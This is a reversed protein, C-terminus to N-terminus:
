RVDQYKPTDVDGYTQVFYQDLSIDTAKGIQDRSKSNPVCEIVGCQFLIFSNKMTSVPYYFLVKKM